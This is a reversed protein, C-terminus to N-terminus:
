MRSELPIVCIFRLTDSGTNRYGHVEDPPVLLFRGPLMEGADGDPNTVVGSGGLVYIEHEYPHHHPAFVVGPDLEIVRMAFNPAGEKQTLLWRIRIGEHVVEPEVASADNLYM